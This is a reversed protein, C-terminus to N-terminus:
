AKKHCNVHQFFAKIKKKIRKHLEFPNLQELQQILEDKTPQPVHESELVRQLPTKPQDHVKVIKAGVRHKAVLKVSPLFFNHYLRWESTYIANLHDVLEPRDFRDYGLLQRVHTWNKGEVHANDNKRYPRSRTFQVRRNGTLYRFLHWNLFESGNDCDFGKLAFPLANEISKIARLTNQEGSGWIARQETWGTAIDVCNLTYVFMGATSAGCHAVTDAEIFGPITEDWQQLKVPIKKKLLSGPKTTARGRPLAAKRVPAMLRDITAASISLLLQYIDPSIDYPYHPLWLAILAKLRKACPLNAAIWLDKLVALLEPHNYKAPRGRREVHSQGSRGRQTGSKGNLLRIAHKRHYVCVRCVEDLIRSKEFRSAHRYRHRVSAIYEFCARPSM